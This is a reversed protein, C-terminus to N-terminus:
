LYFTKEIVPRKTYQGIVSIFIEVIEPDFQNGACRRLENIAMEIGLIGRYPRESTM